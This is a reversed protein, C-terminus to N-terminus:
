EADGAGTAVYPPSARPTRRGSRPGELVVRPPLLRRPDPRRDDDLADLENALTRTLVPLPPLSSGHLLGHTEGLAGPAVTHVAEVVYELFVGLDSDAEDLSVWACPHDLSEAWLSALTSKGYGAPASILTLPAELGALLQEHLRTRRLLASSLAPRNLKTRVIPGQPMDGMADM